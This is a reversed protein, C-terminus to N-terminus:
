DGEDHLGGRPARRLPEFPLTVALGIRVIQQILIHTQPSCDNMGPSRLSGIRWRTSL